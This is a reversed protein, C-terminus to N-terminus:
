EHITVAHLEAAIRKVQELRQRLQVIVHCSEILLRNQDAPSLLDEAAWDIITYSGFNHRNMSTKINKKM